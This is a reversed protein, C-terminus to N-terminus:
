MMWLHLAPTTSSTSRRYSGAGADGAGAGVGDVITRLKTSAVTQRRRALGLAMVRLWRRRLPRVFSKDSLSLHPSLTRSMYAWLERGLPVLLMVTSLTPIHNTRSRPLALM